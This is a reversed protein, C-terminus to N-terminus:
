GKTRPAPYNVSRESMWSGSKIVNLYYIALSFYIRALIHVRKVFFLLVGLIAPLLGLLMNNLILILHMFRVKRRTEHKSLYLHRSIHVETKTMVTVALNSRSSGGHMHGIVAEKLLVIEGGADRARRCLDVDEYYMWFNDDWGGLSFFDEKRIMVVSGSVWDPYLWKAEEMFRTELRGYFFRHIARLWGTLTGVTLFRGYPRDMTGDERRQSCSVISCAPRKEVEQIMAYIAEEDVSTDPNLFLLVRGNSCTAGKNCGNAFGNNGSNPKFTFQPYQQIFAVLSGDDSQNDVVIVELSFRQHSIAQLSNLCRKLKEGGRFNVIIVSLDKLHRTNTSRHIFREQSALILCFKPSSLARRWKSFYWSDFLQFLVGSEPCIGRHLM